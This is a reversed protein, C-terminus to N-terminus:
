ATPMAKIVENRWRGLVKAGFWEARVESIPLGERYQEIHAAEHATVFVIAERWDNLTVEPWRGGRRAEGKDRATANWYGQEYPFCDPTDVGVVILHRAGRPANSM